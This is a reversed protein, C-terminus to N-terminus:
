TPFRSTAGPKIALTHNFTMLAYTILNSQYDLHKYPSVRFLCGAALSGLVWVHHHLM